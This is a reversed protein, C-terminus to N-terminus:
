INEKNCESRWCNKDFVKIEGVEIQINKSQLWRFARFRHNGDRIHLLCPFLLLPSGIWKNGAIIMKAALYKVHWANRDIDQDPVKSTVWYKEPWKLYEPTHDKFPTAKDIVEDSIGGEKFRCFKEIKNIDIKSM